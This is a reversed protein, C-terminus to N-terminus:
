NITRDFDNENKKEENTRNGEPSLKKNKVLVWILEETIDKDNGDDDENTM